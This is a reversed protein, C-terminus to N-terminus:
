ECGAQRAPLACRNGAGVEIGRALEAGARWEAQISSNSKEPYGMGRLEILAHCLIESLGRREKEFLRYM